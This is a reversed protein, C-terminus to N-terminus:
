SEQGIRYQNIIKGEDSCGVLQLSGGAFEVIDGKSISRFALKDRLLLKGKKFALEQQFFSLSEDNSLTIIDGKRYARNHKDKFDHVVVLFACVAQYHNYKRIELYLLILFIYVASLFLINGINNIIFM